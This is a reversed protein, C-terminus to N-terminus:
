GRQQLRAALQVALDAGEKLQRAIEPAKGGSQRMKSLAQLLQELNQAILQQRFEPDRRARTLAEENVLERM